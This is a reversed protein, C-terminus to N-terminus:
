FSEELSLLIAPEHLEMVGNAGIRARQLSIAGAPRKITYIERPSNEPRLELMERNELEFFSYKGKQTTVGSVLDYVGNPAFHIKGIIGNYVAEIYTSVSENIKDKVATPISTAKRYSGDWSVDNGIKLRVDEFVKVRVSELSELTIDLSRRLTQVSINQTLLYLGSRTAGSQQWKFVQQTEDIYFIVERNQPDFYLYQRKDVAGGPTVFYWLGAIFREFGKAGGSLIERVQKEEVQKSPIRTLKSQEYVGSSESYTYMLEVKDLIHASEADRGYATISFGKGRSIGQQYAQARPTEQISIMGDIQIDAIKQFRGEKKERNEDNKRFVTLTYEGEGNMGSAIICVSRDGLLDQTYFALTGPRLIPTVANWVQKYTRSEEDFEVYALCVAGGNEILSRYAIFQEEQPNDDFNETLVRLLMEGNGLTVKASENSGAESEGSLGGAEETSLPLGGEIVRTLRFEKQADASEASRLLRNPFSNPFFALSTVILATLLFVLGTIVQSTKVVAM